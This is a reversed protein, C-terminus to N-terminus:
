GEKTTTPGNGVTSLRGALACAVLHCEEVAAGIAALAGAARRLLVSLDDDGCPAVFDILYPLFAMAADEAWADLDGDGTPVLPLLRAVYHGDCREVSVHCKGTPLEAVTV